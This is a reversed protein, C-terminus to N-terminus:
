QIIQQPLKLAKIVANYNGKYTYVVREIFTATDGKYQDYIARINHYMCMYDWDNHTSQHAAEICLDLKQDINKFKAEVYKGRCCVPLHIESKKAM